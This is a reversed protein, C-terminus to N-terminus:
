KFHRHKDPKMMTGSSTLLGSAIQVKIPNSDSRCRCCFKSHNYSSLVTSCIKCQREAGKVRRPKPTNYLDELLLSPITEQGQDNM